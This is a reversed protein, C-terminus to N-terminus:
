GHKKRDGSYNKSVDSYGFEEGKELKKESPKGYKLISYVMWLMLFPSSLFMLAIIEPNFGLYPTTTYFVLFSSVTIIPLRDNKM